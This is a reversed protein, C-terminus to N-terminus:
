FVFPNFELWSLVRDLNLLRVFVSLSSVGLFFALIILSNLLTSSESQTLATLRMCTALAISAASIWLM